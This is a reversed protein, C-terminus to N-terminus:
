RLSSTFATGGQSRRRVATAQPEPNFSKGPKQGFFGKFDIQASFIGLFTIIGTSPREGGNSESSLTTIAVDDVIRLDAAIRISRWDPSVMQFTSIDQPGVFCCCLDSEQVAFKGFASPEHTLPEALEQSFIPMGATSQFPPSSHAVHAQLLSDYYPTTDEILKVIDNRLGCVM